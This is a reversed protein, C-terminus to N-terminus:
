AAVDGRKDPSRPYRRDLVSTWRQVYRVRATALRMSGGDYGPTPQGSGPGNPDSSHLMRRISKKRPSGCPSNGSIQKRRLENQSGSRPAATRGM